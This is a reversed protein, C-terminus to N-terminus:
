KKAFDKFSKRIRKLFGYFDRTENLHKLLSPLEPINHSCESVAFEHHSVDITITYEQDWDLENIRTFVFGIHDEKIGVIRMALVSEFIALEPRNKLVQEDLAKKQAIKAERKAKVERRLIAVQEELSSRVQAMEDDRESLEQIAKSMNSAEEKEKMLDKALSAEEALATKMAERLERDSERAESTDQVWQETNEAIKTKIKQVSNNFETIFTGSRAALEESDLQPIPLVPTTTTIGAKNPLLSLRNSGISLRQNNTSDGFLSRGSSSNRTGTLTSGGSSMSTLSTM